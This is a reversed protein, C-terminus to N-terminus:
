SNVVMVTEDYEKAAQQAEKVVGKITRDGDIEAEFGCIAAAEYM